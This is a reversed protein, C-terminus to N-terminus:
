LTLLLTYGLGLHAPFDSFHENLRSQPNFHDVHVQFEWYTSTM